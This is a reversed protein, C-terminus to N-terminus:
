VRVPFHRQCLTNIRFIHPSTSVRDIRGQNTETGIEFDCHLVYINTTWVFKSFPTDMFYCPFLWVGNCYINEKPALMHNPRLSPLSLSTIKKNEKLNSESLNLVSLRSFIDSNQNAARPVPLRFPTSRWNAYMTASIAKTATILFNLNRRTSSFSLSQGTNLCAVRWFSSM